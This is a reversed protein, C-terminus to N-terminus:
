EYYITKPKQKKWLQLLEKTTIHKMSGNKPMYVSFGRDILGIENNLKLEDLWEAFEIMDEDSNSYTEKSKNYGHKFGIRFTYGEYKTIEEVEDVVKPCDINPNTTAIVKKCNKNIYELHGYTGSHRIVKNQKIDYIFADPLKEEDSVYYDFGDIIVKDCLHTEGTQKNILKHM